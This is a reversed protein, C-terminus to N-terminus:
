IRVCIEIHMGGFTYAYKQASNDVKKGSLKKMSQWRLTDM